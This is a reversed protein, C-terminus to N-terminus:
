VCCSCRCVPTTSCGNTAAEATDDDGLGRVWRNARYADPWDAEVAVVSFGRQEILARTLDARPRYFEQTGHTAEGILVLSAGPEVAELLRAVASGADFAVAHERVIEALTNAM